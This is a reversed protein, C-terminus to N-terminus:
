SRRALLGSRSGTTVMLQDIDILVWTIMKSDCSCSLRPFRRDPLPISDADARDFQTMSLGSPIPQRMASRFTYDYEIRFRHPCEHGNWVSEGKPTVMRIEDRSITFVFGGSAAWRGSMRDPFATEGRDDDRVWAKTRFYIRVGLWYNKWERQNSEEPMSWVFFAGFLLLAIGAPVVKWQPTFNSPAKWALGGFVLISASVLWFGGWQLFWFVETWDFFSGQAAQLFHWPNSAGLLFAGLVLLVLGFWFM